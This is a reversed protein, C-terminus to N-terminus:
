IIKEIKYKYKIKNIFDIIQISPSNNQLKCKYIYMYYHLLLLTYNLKKTLTDSASSLGFLVDEANLNFNFSNNVNFWQLVEQTFSKTFQCEIFTHDISDSEGCYICNSDPKINFRFLEKKTVVVRHIFKFHFERLKNEKCVKRVSRFIKKWNTKDETITRNWQRPGSHQDNYRRHIIPWCFDKSKAKLLNINVNEALCYFELDEHSVGKCTSGSDKSIAKASKKPFYKRGSPGIRIM